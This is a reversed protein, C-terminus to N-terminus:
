VAASRLGSYDDDMQEAAAFSLCARLDAETLDDFDTLLDAWSTGGALREMAEQATFRLGRICPQGFRKGPEVTITGRYDVGHGLLAAVAAEAERGAAAARLWRRLERRAVTVTAGKGEGARRERLRALEGAAGMAAREGARAVALHLKQRRDFEAIPLKWLHKQLHRAGFQGKNMLPKVMEHLVDSNIIALLYYAEDLSACAVWFLTGDILLSDDGILAATPAGSSTYVIRIPREGADAQWALQASLKRMYDLQGLLDLRNARAKHQEWRDAITRWRRRMRLRLGAADVGGPGDEAAAIAEDGPKVPLLARLPELAVYPAITEGLHVGFLHEREITQGSIETLDLTSWPAKDQGGRRPNVTVTGGARIIAPNETENVFFLCRPVITAGNKSLSEYLSDGRQGTDTIETLTRAVGAGGAPGQWREVAGALARGRADPGCRRAFVVSAPVPFFTNPELGELDWARKDAFSVQVGSSSSRERWVGSRWKSYQGAQLASHPLVFGIVGDEKLYLEVSRAFFLGAVDQHTAYRGGAWIGYRNRSLNVLGERLADVTQNYNIWPPNGVLVDVKDRSLAVPRVMNRTYYAWIHNRGVEHLRRMTAITAQMTAWEAPDDVGAERLLDDPSDGQEIAEAVQSMLDDFQEPRHVLSAPFSLETNQGDGTQITVRDQAFLDDTRFRLQLADGLYIPISLGGSFGAEGAAEIVPRAALTWASKALHVAVPHIDIGTVARRLRNLTEHPHWRPRGSAPTAAGIFHRVAAAVFAGSGCAPDLVRQELPDTALEEVIAQALWGPTYYEGLQRREEPPIVTEYLIAGIDAPAGKWDFKAARRALTRLWGRGGVEAPWAFFDSEVIGQLGTRSRFDRGYLLDEPEREALGRLEIGFSAQVAMGIVASLYTHRIFLHELQEPGGAIEGLATRLLDHWLQRKVRVTELDAAPRYLERLAAIDRRYNPNSPGFHRAISGRDVPEDKLQELANDRLWEFLPLWGEAGELTFGYPPGTNVPGADPWRLLWYKGDTLVGTRLRGQQWSLALYDDLQKVYEPNPEGAGATGVRRKLEIFTDLATLDVGRRSGDSPPNEEVMEDSRALGTGMLFDRVASTINAEPENRDHRRLLEEALRRYKPDREDLHEAGAM